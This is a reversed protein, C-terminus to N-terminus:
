LLSRWLDFVKLDFSKRDCMCLFRFPKPDQVEEIFGDAEFTTVMM